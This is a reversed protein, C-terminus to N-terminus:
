MIVKNSQELLKDAISIIFDNKAVAKVWKEPINDLGYFAGALQGYIAGTTDADEGLNVAKLVGEEFSKSHYFAWLAAELSAVVYGRGKIKPPNNHIFSGKAVQIIEKALRINKWSEPFPSYLGSLLKDKSAGNLVGIILGIYYKCADASLQSAHTVKSSLEAYNIAKQPNNRFYLAIPAIRMLSGNSHPQSSLIKTYPNNEEPKYSILTRLINQGVGIARGTSSCYGTHLWRKYKEIQDKPDFGNCEILSNALCLTMATDDSWCGASLTYRDSERFDTIPVFSGYPKFEVPVGLADGIALGILSGRYRNNLDKM